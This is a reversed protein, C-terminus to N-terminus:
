LRIRPVALGEPAMEMLTEDAPSTEAEPSSSDLPADATLAPDPSVNVGLRELVACGGLGVVVASCLSLSLFLRSPVRM